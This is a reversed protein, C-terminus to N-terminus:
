SEKEAHVSMHRKLKGREGFGKNCVPCVHPKEKREVTRVHKNLDSRNKYRKFCDPCQFPRLQHHVARLHTDRAHKRSFKSPCESCAFPKRKRHIEDVHKRLNGSQRFVLSCEACPFKGARRPRSKTDSESSEAEAEPSALPGQIAPAPVGVAHMGTQHMGPPQIGAGRLSPHLLDTRPPGPPPLPRLAIAAYLPMRTVCAPSIPSTSLKAGLAAPHQRPHQMSGADTDDIESLLATSRGSINVDEVVMLEDADIFSSLYSSQAPDPVAIEHQSAAASLHSNEPRNEQCNVSPSQMRAPARSLRSCSSSDTQPDDSVNLHGSPVSGDSPLSLHRSDGTLHLYRSPQHETLSITPTDLDGLTSFADADDELALGSEALHPEEFSNLELSPYELESLNLDM